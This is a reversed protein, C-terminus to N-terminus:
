DGGHDPAWGCCDRHGEILVEVSNEPMHYIGEVLHTSHVPHALRECRRSDDGAPGICVTCREDDNEALRNGQVDVEGRAVSAQFHERLAAIEGVDFMRTVGSSGSMFTIENNGENVHVVVASATGAGAGRELLELAKRMALIDQDMERFASKGLRNTNVRSRLLAIADERDTM